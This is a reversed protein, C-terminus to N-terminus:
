LAALVVVLLTVHLCLLIVNRSSYNQSILKSIRKHAKKYSASSPRNVVVLVVERERERKGSIYILLVLTAHYQVTYHMM